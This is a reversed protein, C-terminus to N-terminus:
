GLIRGEGRGSCLLLLLESEIIQLMFTLLYIRKCKREAKTRGRHGVKGQTNRTRMRQTCSRVRPMWGQHAKPMNELVQNVQYCCM